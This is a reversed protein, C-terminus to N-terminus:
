KILVLLMKFASISELSHPINAPLVIVEGTKIICEKSNIVIKCKGNIAYILADGPAVHTSLGEGKEFSFLSMNINDNKTLTKSVVEGSKSNILSSLKIVKAHEINNIKDM